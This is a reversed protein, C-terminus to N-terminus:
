PAGAHGLGTFALFAAFLLTHFASRVEDQNQDYSSKILIYDINQLVMMLDERSVRSRGEEDRTWSGQNRLVSCYILLWILTVLFLSGQM